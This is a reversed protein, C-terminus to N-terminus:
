AAMAALPIVLEDLDLEHTLEDVPMLPVVRSQTPHEGIILAQAGLGVISGLEDALDLRTAGQAPAAGEDM